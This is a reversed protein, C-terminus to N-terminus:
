RRIVELHKIFDEFHARVVGTASIFFLGANQQHVTYAKYNLTQKKGNQIYTISLDKLIACFNLTQSLNPSFVQWTESNPETCPITGPIGGPQFNVRMSIAGAERELAQYQYPAFGPIKSLQPNPTHYPISLARGYSMWYNSAQWRNGAKLDLYFSTEIYDQPLGAPYVIIAQYPALQKIKELEQPTIAQVSPALLLAATLIKALTRKFKM